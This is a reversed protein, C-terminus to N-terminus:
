SNDIFELIIYLIIFIVTAWVSEKRRKLFMGQPAVAQRGEEYPLRQDRYTLINDLLQKKILQLKQIMEPIQLTPEYVPGYIMVQDGIIEVDYDDAAILAEMVDPTIFSLSDITYDQAFYTMFHRDFNGELRHEQKADFIPKFQRGRQKLSDFLVNPLMRPLPMSMVAYYIIAVKHEGNRSQQYVAYEIDTYEWDKTRYGNDYKRDRDAVHLLSSNRLSPPEGSVAQWGQQSAVTALKLKRNKLLNTIRAHQYIITGIVTMFFAAVILVTASGQVVTSGSAVFLNVIIAFAIVFVTLLTIIGNWFTSRKELYNPKKALGNM